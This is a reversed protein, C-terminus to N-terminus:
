EIYSIYSMNFQFAYLNALIESLVVYCLMVSATIRSVYVVCVFECQCYARYSYTFCCLYNVFFCRLTKYVHWSIHVCCLVCSALTVMPM